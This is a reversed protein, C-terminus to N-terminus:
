RDSIYIMTHQLKSSHTVDFQTWKNKFRNYSMSNPTSKEPENLSQRKVFAFFSFVWSVLLLMQKQTQRNFTKQTQADGIFYWIFHIIFYSIWISSHVKKILINSFPMNREEGWGGGVKDRKREEKDRRVNETITEIFAVM